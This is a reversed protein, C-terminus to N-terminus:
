TSEIDEFGAAFDPFPCFQRLISAAMAGIDAQNKRVNLRALWVGVSVWIHFIVFATTAATGADNIGLPLAPAAM